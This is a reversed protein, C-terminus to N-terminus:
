SVLGHEKLVGQEDGTIYAFIKLENNLDQLFYIVDFEIILEDGNKKTYFSQWHVRAMIHFDDLRTTNVSSVKMAKAGTKRYQEMGKPIVKRFNDDNPGGMVGVPSAEVFYKAFCNVTGDVDPEGALGAEFRAAYAAFFEEVRDYAQDVPELNENVYTKKM